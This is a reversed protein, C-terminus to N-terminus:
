RWDGLAAQWLTIAAVSADAHAVCPCLIWEGLAALTDSAEASFNPPWHRALVHRAVAFAARACCEDGWHGLSNVFYVFEADERPVALEAWRECFETKHLTPATSPRTALAAARRGLYAVLELRAQDLDGVRVRELLYAAEDDVAETLRWRRELDRLREDSM